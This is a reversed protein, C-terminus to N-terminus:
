TQNNCTLTFRFFQTYPVFGMSMRSSPGYPRPMSVWDCSRESTSVKRFACCIAAVFNPRRATLSPFSTELSLDPALIVNVVTSLTSANM